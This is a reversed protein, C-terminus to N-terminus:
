EPKLSYFGPEYQITNQGDNKTILVLWTSSLDYDFTNYNRATTKSTLIPINIIDSSQYKAYLTEALKRVEAQTANKSVVIYKITSIGTLTYNFTGKDPVATYKIDKIPKVPKTIETPYTKSVNNFENVAIFIVFIVFAGLVIKKLM